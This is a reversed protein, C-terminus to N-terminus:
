RKSLASIAKDIMIAARSLSSELESATAEDLRGSEHKLNETSAGAELRPTMYVTEPEADRNSISNMLLEFARMAIEERSFEIQSISPSMLRFMNSGDYGLVAFDEPIRLKLERAAMTLLVPIRASACYLADVGRRFADELILKMDYIDNESGIHHIKYPLGKETMYGAFLKERLQANSIRAALSIMDIKDFGRSLLHDVAIHTATVEDAMVRGVGQLEPIDRTILVVPMGQEVVRAIQRHCDVGPTIIIGDVGDEMFANAVASLQEANDDTSGFLVIYGSRRALREIQRAVDAFFFNSIDPIIVGIRKQLQKRLSVAAKNPHYGLENIANFIRKATDPHVVCDPTGDERLPANMVRSVLATSVYARAAVDKITVKKM